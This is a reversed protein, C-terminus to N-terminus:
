ASRSIEYRFADLMETHQQPGRLGKRSASGGFDLQRSHRQHQGRFAQRM